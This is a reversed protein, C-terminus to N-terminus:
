RSKYTPVTYAQVLPGFTQFGPLSQSGLVQLLCSVNVHIYTYTM